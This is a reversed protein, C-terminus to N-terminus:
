SRRTAAGFPGRRPRRRRASRSDGRSARFLSRWGDFELRLPNATGPSDRLQGDSARGGEAIWTGALRDWVTLVPGLNAAGGAAHHHRHGHPTMVAAAFWRPFCVPMSSHELLQWLNSLASVGVVMTLDFGLLAMFPHLVLVLVPTWSQRLGLTIDFHTGSHHPQHAAWGIATRHGLWHYVWGIADWAVFAVVFALIAHARWFSSSALPARELLAPWMWRLFATYGVGFVMAGVAMVSGTALSLLVSPRRDASVVAIWTVECLVALTSVALSASAVLTSASVGSLQRLILDTM